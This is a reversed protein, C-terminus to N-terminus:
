EIKEFLHGGKSIKGAFKERFSCDGISKIETGLMESIKGSAEPIFPYLLISSIRIGELLNYLVGELEAGKLKWPETKNVYANCSRVFEMTKDLAEHLEFREFRKRIEELALGEELEKRGSFESKGAKEALTLVRNVLNGLAGLLEKNYRDKLGEETFDSDNFNPSDRIFYYRLGDATYKDIMNTPNVSNGLSKSMKEGNVTFYGHVFLLRPLGIKASLLVAPWYVAHFRIIGKGIVHVDAPWWRAFEKGDRGYGVATMYVSLADLWVYMIQSPDNPVPVGWGHARKESRSISFDELGTRIFSLIENKRTEPLIVLRGSEVLSELENQYKSLRFFYNEEEVREPKTHHEPCKGEVLESETYFAECGVCYLGSYKKKYIDGNRECLKWLEEVGPWHEEKASSRLFAGYSLGIKDALEKFLAANRACLEATPIGLKEAAQVNKLSNEDAGTAVMVEDGLLRRYRAIVDTQVFELAHGIHPPANVYPIATTIYFKAM